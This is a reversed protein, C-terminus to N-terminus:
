GLRGAAHALMTYVKGTESVLYTRTLSDDRDDRNVEGLLREFEQVYRDVTTRFDPDVRYRRRIEEFTQLGRGIYLRNAFADPEGHRYRDWADVLAKHDVMRAIDHSITELPETSAAPRPIPGPRSVAAPVPTEERSARALLDSLWSPGRESMPAAPRAPPVAVRPRLPERRTPEAAPQPEVLRPPEHRMADLRRVLSEGRPAPAPAPESLDYSRGSRAVVETLENLAKIQDAVVRRMAAAQEAAEQPLSIANRQLEGRTSELEHKIQQAVGRIEAAANQFRETTQGFIAELEANAQQYAARLVSGTHERENGMANRIDSFQRDVMGATAESAEALFSGIERARSEAQRFSEDVLGAFSKMVDDFDQHRTHVSELLTELSVRREDLTQDLEAQSLALDRAAAALSQQQRAITDSLANASNITTGARAGLEYVDKTVITLTSQFEHLRAALTTELATLNADANGILEQLNATREGLKELTSGIGFQISESTDSLDKRREDL